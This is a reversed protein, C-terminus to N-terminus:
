AVKSTAPLVGASAEIDDNRPTITGESDMMGPGKRLGVLTVPNTQVLYMYWYYTGLDILLFGLIPFITSKGVFLGGGVINGLLTPIIGKWIYLGVSIGPADLWIAMPIFTMNAVVHDLGLSVFAYIPLWIGIIKSALERGQLALFCALCVLWNCGIGRLFISHFEPTVQKKTAFSIVASKYPDASFVEGDPGTLQLIEIYGPTWVALSSPSLLYRDVYTEGSPSSGTSFCGTGPYKANSPQSPPTSSCDILVLHLPYVM